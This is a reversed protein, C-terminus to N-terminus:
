GKAESTFEGPNFTKYLLELAEDSQLEATRLGLRSLGQEVVSVRQELGARQEEFDIISQTTQNRKKDLFSFIKQLGKSQSVIAPVYPVVVFFSKKMINRTEAFVRIFEIYERTQIQLLPETQERMRNELSIIYPRVDYRRSQIVIQVPFDLTNLFSQFGGIIAQQEEGSRLSLNISTVDIVSCLSGDKLIIIGDRTEKVPIFNQAPSGSQTM